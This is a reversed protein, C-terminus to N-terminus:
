GSLIFCPRFFYRRSNSSPVLKTFSDVINACIITLARSTVGPYFTGGAQV